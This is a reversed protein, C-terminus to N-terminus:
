ISGFTETLDVKRATIPLDSYGHGVTVFGRESRSISVILKINHGEAEGICRGCELGEHLINELVHEVNQLRIGRRYISRNLSHHLGYFAHVVLIAVVILAGATCMVM